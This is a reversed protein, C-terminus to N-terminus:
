SERISPLSHHSRTLDTILEDQLWKQLYEAAVSAAEASSFQGILDSCVEAFSKGQQLQSLTTFEVELITRFHPQWGKRWILLWSPESLLEAVPPTLGRDLAHWINSSNFRQIAIFLTPTFNFGVKEWDAVSLGSLAAPQLPSANPGDFAHRMQWDILALEAIDADEPFHTALWQPFAAGYWRINDVQSPQEEIFALAARSFTEDGLYRWTKEFTGQLNARLRQQYNHQYLSMCQANSLHGNTVLEQKITSPQNRLHDLFLVQMARLPLTNM